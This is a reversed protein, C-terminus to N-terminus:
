NNEKSNNIDIYKFKPGFTIFEQGSGEYFKQFFEVFQLRLTHVFGGLANIALNLIHGIILFIIMLVVGVVPIPIMDKITVALINIVLALVGTSLGIAFLRLYSLADGFLGTMGFFANYAGMFVRVIPNKTEYSDFLIIWLVGVGFVILPITTPVSAGLFKYVLLVSSPIILLWPINKHLAEQKNGLRWQKVFGTIFGIMIHILGVFIAFKMFTMGKEPDLPDLLIYKKLHVPITIGFFGGTLVGMIITPISSLFLIMLLAPINKMKKRVSPIIFLSGLVLLMVLGYGGDTLCIGFFLTFFPLFFFSPDIEFYSPRGYLDTIFQFPKVIKSNKFLIPPTDEESPDSTEIDLLKFEPESIISNFAKIHKEPLWGILTFTKETLGLNEEGKLREQEVQFFDYTVYIQSLNSVGEKIHEELVNIDKDITEIMETIAILRQRVLSTENPFSVLKLDYTNFIQSVQPSINKHYIIFVFIDNSRSSIREIEIYKLENLDEAFDYFDDSKLYGLTSVTSETKGLEELPIDLDVWQKLQEEKVLLNNKRIYLTNIENHIKQYKFYLEKVDFERILKNFESDNLEIKSSFMGSLFGEQEKYPEFLDILFKINKIIEELGSDHVSQAQLLDSDQYTEIINEVQLIDEKHLKALFRKKLSNHGIAVVKKLKEISM